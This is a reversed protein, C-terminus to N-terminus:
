HSPGSKRAWRNVALRLTKPDFPKVVVDNMGARLCAERSEKDAHGTLAIIPIRREPDESSRIEVTADLGSTGPMEVDMLVLDYRERSLCAIAERGDSAVDVSHGAKELFKKAISRNISGDDVVLIRLASIEAGERSLAFGFHAGRADERNEAWIRGEHAEVIRRAIALGLGHSEEGGTPKASLRCFEGFAKQLDEDSLGPGEDLVSVLAENGTESVRVTIRTSGPAYKIANSVLNDLVQRIRLSDAEVVPAPDPVDAVLLQGKGHANGEHFRTAERVLLGLDTPVRQIELKGAGTRAEELISELLRLLRGSEERLLAVHQAVEGAAGAISEALLTALNHIGGIGGRLDHAAVGLIRKKEEGARRLNTNAWELEERRAQLEAVLEASIANARALKENARHLEESREELEAVLEASRVNAEALRHNARMLEESKAELEAVLEAAEVNALALRENVAERDEPRNPLTRDEM